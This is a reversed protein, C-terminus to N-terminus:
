HGFHVYLNGPVQFANLYEPLFTYAIRTQEAATDDLLLSHREWASALM